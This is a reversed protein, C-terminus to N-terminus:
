VFFLGVEHGCGAAAKEDVVEGGLGGERGFVEGFHVAVDLCGGLSEYGFFDERADVLEFCM